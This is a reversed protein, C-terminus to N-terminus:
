CHPLEPFLVASHKDISTYSYEPIELVVERVWDSNRRDLWYRTPYSYYAYADDYEIEYLSLGGLRCEDRVSFKSWSGLAWTLWNENEVLPLVYPTYDTIRLYGIDNV